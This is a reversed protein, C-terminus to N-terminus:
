NLRVAKQVVKLFNEAEFPKKIWSTVGNNLAENKIKPDIETSLILVPVNRYNFSTKLRKTFEVGNMNPMHYDSIILDIKRGDLIKMADIANNANLVKFGAKTLTFDIVKRTLDFDDIVLVTHEM